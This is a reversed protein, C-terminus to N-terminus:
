KPFPNHTACASNAGVAMEGGHELHVYVLNEDRKTAALVIQKLDKSLHGWEYKSTKAKEGGLRWSIEEGRSIAGISVRRM